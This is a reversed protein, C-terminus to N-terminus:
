LSLFLQNYICTYIVCPKYIAVNKGADHSRFLDSKILKTEVDIEDFCLTM